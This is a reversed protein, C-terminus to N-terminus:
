FGFNKHKGTTILISNIIKLCPIGLRGHVKSLTQHLNNFEDFLHINGGRDGVIIFHKHKCAATTWREKTKPLIGYINFIGDEINGVRLQGLSDCILINSGNLWHLSM